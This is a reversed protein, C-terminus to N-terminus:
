SLGSTLSQVNGWDEGAVDTNILQSCVNEAANSRMITFMAKRYLAVFAETM